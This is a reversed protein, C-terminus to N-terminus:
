VMPQTRREFFDYNIRVTDFVKLASNSILEEFNRDCSSEDERAKIIVYEKPADEADDDDDHQDKDDKFM